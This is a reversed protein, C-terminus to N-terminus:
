EIRSEALNVVKGSKLRASVGLHSAEESGAVGPLTKCPINGLATLELYM